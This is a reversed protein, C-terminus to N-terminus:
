MLAKGKYRVYEYMCGLFFSLESMTRASDSLEMSWYVSLTLPSSGLMSRKSQNKLIFKIYQIQLKM